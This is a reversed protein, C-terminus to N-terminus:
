GAGRHQYTRLSGDRALYTLVFGEPWLAVMQDLRAEIEVEWDIAPGYPGPGVPGCCGTPGRMGQDVKAVGACKRRNLDSFTM